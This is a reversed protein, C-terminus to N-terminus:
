GFNTIVARTEFLDFSGWCLLSIWHCISSGPGTNDHLIRMKWLWMRPLRCVFYTHKIERMSVIFDPDPDRVIAHPTWECLAMYLRTEEQGTYTHTTYTEIRRSKRRSCVLTQIPPIHSRIHLYLFAMQIGISYSAYRRTPRPQAAM